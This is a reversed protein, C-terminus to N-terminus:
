QRGYYILMSLEARKKGSNRYTHPIDSAFKISDGESLTVKNEGATLEVEGAFVTFYEYSGALHPQAELEGGPEIIIRYTEFLTRDNFRFVPYNLYKGGDEQLPEIDEARIISVEEDQREVLSTFSVKYGSAIKWLVSVTPNVDGKEIQALMSRSVGTLGAAADLTLKRQERISKINAGVINTVDM